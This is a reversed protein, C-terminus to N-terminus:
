PLYKICIESELNYNLDTDTASSELAYVGQSREFGAQSLSTHGRSETNKQGTDPQDV